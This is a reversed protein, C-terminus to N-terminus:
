GKLIYSGILRNGSDSSSPEMRVKKLYIFRHSKERSEAPRNIEYLTDPIGTSDPLPRSKPQPLPLPVPYPQSMVPQPSTTCLFKSRIYYLYYHFHNTSITFTNSQLLYVIVQLLNGFYLGNTPKCVFVGSPSTRLATWPQQFLM